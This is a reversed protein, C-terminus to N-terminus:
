KSSSLYIPHNIVRDKCMPCRGCPKGNKPFWCSWTIELINYFNYQNSLKMIEKKSLRVIPFSIKSLVYNNSNNSVKPIIETNLENFPILYKKLFMGWADKGAPIGVTGLDIYQQQQYAYRALYEYQHVKRKGPWLNLKTFDNSFKIDPKIMEKTIYKTDLLLNKHYKKICADKVKSAILKRANLEESINKRVWFDTTNLSDLNFSMYIPQVTQGLVLIRYCIIYTSDYGGTWYVNYIKSKNFSEIINFKCCIIIIFIITLICRIM